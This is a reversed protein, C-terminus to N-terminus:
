KNYMRYLFTIVQGRVCDDDPSFTTETTGTTIGHEAGWSVAAYYFAEPDVDEFDNAGTAAEGSARYLFTITEARNITRGIGFETDSIGKAIGNEYAWLVAYYYYENPDLDAFPSQAGTPMPSGAARWLFTVMQARTCEKGPAFHTSDVGETIGTSVAWLVAEYFYDEESVDGFPNEIAEPTVIGAPTATATGGASNEGSQDVYPVVSPIGIVAQKAYDGNEDIITIDNGIAGLTAGAPSLIDLGEGLVIYGGCIIGAATAAGGSANMEIRGEGGITVNRGSVAYGSGDARLVGSGTIILDNSDKDASIGRSAGSLRNDGTLEITLPYGVASETAFYINAPEGGAGAVPDISGTISADELSLTHTDPDYSWGAGTTEYSNVQKGDIWLPYLVGDFAFNATLDRAGDANFTYSANGSVENDNETWNVFVYHEAPTATVTVSSGKAYLGGGTVEGAAAPSADTNITYATYIEARDAPTTSDAEYIGLGSLYNAFVYGDPAIIALDDNLAPESNGTLYVAPVSGSQTEAIIHSDGSASLASARIGANQIGSATVVAGNVTLDGCSMGYTGGASVAAGSITVPMDAAAIGSANGETTLSGTGTVTLTRNGRGPARFAIGNGAGSLTNNGELDITLQLKDSYVYINANDDSSLDNWSYNGTINADSLTLTGASEDGVYSWGPGTTLASNLHEGGVWIPYWTGAFEFNATINLEEEMVRARLEPKNYFYSGNIWWDVFRYGNNAIATLTVNERLSHIGTGSVTGVGAPSVTATLEHPTGIVVRTAPNGESDCLTYKGKGTLDVFSYTGPETIALGDQLTFSNMYGFVGRSSGGTLEVYSDGSIAIPGECNFSGRSDSGSTARIESDVITMGGYAANLRSGEQLIIQSNRITLEAAGYITAYSDPAGPSHITLHPGDITLYVCRIASSRNQTVLIGSGTIYVHPSSDSTAIGEKANSLRNTGTLVITLSQWSDYWINASSSFGSYDYGGSIDANNLSLTRTAPDYKWGQGSLNSGTVRAGGIWLPYEQNSAAFNAVIARDAEGATFSYASDQSLLVGNESWGTFTYNSNATATLSVNDGQTFQGGGSATGGAQPNVSTTIYVKGRTKFNATLTCSEEPTFTYQASTSVVVDGKKWNVFVAEPNPVATVTIQGGEKVVGGGTVTGSSNPVAEVAVTYEELERFDATITRDASATFTLPTDTSIIQGNENWGLFLCDQQPEATLTVTEGQYFLGGGSVIGLAAPSASAAITYSPLATFYAKVVVNDDPMEFTNNRVSVSISSGSSARYVSDTKYGRDPTVILQVQEGPYFTNRNGSIQLSGHQINDSVLVTRLQSGDSIFTVKIEVEHAPMVFSAEYISSSGQKLHSPIPNDEDWDISFPGNRTGFCASVFSCGATPEFELYVTEGAAATGDGTNTTLTIIGYAEKFNFYVGYRTEAFASGPILAAIMLVCLLVAIARKTQM